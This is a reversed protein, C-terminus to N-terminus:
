VEKITYENVNSSAPVPVAVPFEIFSTCSITQFREMLDLSPCPQSRGSDGITRTGTGTGSLTFVGYCQLYKKLIRCLFPVSSQVLVIPLM